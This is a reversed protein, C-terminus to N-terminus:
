LPQGDPGGAPKSNYGPLHLGGDAHILEGTVFRSMESALFVVVPAIDAEPDGNREIPKRQAAREAFSPNEAALKKFVEGMAAPAIANVTINYRGWEAAASRTLGLIAMKTMNYDSHFWAGVEADISFFNVIKGGGRQKMSDVSARMAWWAAWAGSRMTSDLMQDSKEELTVNPSLSFANNVLVDIGGYTEITAAVAAEVQSRERVDAKIFVAEGGMDRLERAAMRGKDEDIEAIVLRAGEKIFRTAIGRGIGAGGGTILAAKGELLKM